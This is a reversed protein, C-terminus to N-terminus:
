EQGLGTRIFNKALYLVLCLFPLQILCSGQNFSALDASCKGSSSAYFALASGQVASLHGFLGAKLWIACSGDLADYKCAHMICLNWIPVIFLLPMLATRFDNWCLLLIGLGAGLLISGAAGCKYAPCFFIDTDKGYIYWCVAAFLLGGLAGLFACQWVTLETPPVAALIFNEM